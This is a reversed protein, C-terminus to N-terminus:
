GGLREAAEEVSSVFFFDKGKNSEYIFDLLPKSTYKSFDGVIALKVRYNACKQLAEGAIGTALRFFDETISAKDIIIRSCHAEFSVTAILDLVSQSDTIILEKSKVLAIGEGATEITM